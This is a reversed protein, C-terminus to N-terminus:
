DFILILDCIFFPVVKPENDVDNIFYADDDINTRWSRPVHAYEERYFTGEKEGEKLSLFTMEM